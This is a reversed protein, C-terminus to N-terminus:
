GAMGAQIILLILLPLPSFLPLYTLIKIKFILVSKYFKRNALISVICALESV